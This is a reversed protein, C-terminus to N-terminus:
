WCPLRKSPVPALKKAKEPLRAALDQLKDVEANVVKYYRSHEAFSAHIRGYDLPTVNRLKEHLKPAHLRLAAPRSLGETLHDLRRTNPSTNEHTDRTRQVRKSRARGRAGPSM